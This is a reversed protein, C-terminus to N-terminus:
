GHHLVFSVFLCSILARKEKRERKRKEKKKIKLGLWRREQM